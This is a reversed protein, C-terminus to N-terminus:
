KIYEGFLKIRKEISKKGLVKLIEYLDPTMTEGTIGVRILECIDGVHGPYKEPEQKYEKVEKAFNYKGALEKIKNFWDEKSDAEDYYLNIYDTLININYFPKIEVKEYAKGTFLEDYLYWSYKKFDSYSGIDKRPRPVYKEISLIAITKEKYTKILKNFDPDYEKTYTLLKEYIDESKQHSFYIRSISMLKEIDFLSGGVPMKNFEFTFDEVTKDPNNTYWEEFNSNNVSALYLKIVENPVGLKSYYSIAAEPDKRKSLKRVSDGDKITIPAIHGYEPLKFGLLQFMQCHIPYSSVWEDARLVHTTHMLHDDVAHAFHYTPLGDDSKIIVHDLDNEPMEIKGKILDNLIVKKNFEGPSKMRIVYKEGNNIKNIVEDMSLNRCRAYRGYYGLRYKKDEQMKRQASLEEESCFCPYALDEIILKRAYARYIDGRESQVYPGYKGGQTPGEDWKIELHDFDNIIGTIGDEVERKQDTDEIRLYAIGKTQRAFALCAFSTYLSGMHVFGTPSPGFRTVFAGEPLKREPYLEEYYAVSNKVNPLLLKSYEERNM